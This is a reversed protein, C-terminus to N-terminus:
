LTRFPAPTPPHKCSTHKALSSWWQFKKGCVPCEFRLTESHIAMHEDKKIWANREVHTVLINRINWETYKIIGIINRNAKTCGIAGPTGVDSKLIM